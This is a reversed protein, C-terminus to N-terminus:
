LVRCGWVVSQKKEEGNNQQTKSIKNKQEEEGEKCRKRGEAFRGGVGCIQWLVRELGKLDGFAELFSKRGKVDVKGTTRTSGCPHVKPLKASKMFETFTMVSILSASLGHITLPEPLDSRPSSALM